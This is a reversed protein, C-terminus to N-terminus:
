VEADKLLNNGDRTWAALEDWITQSAIHSLKYICYYNNGLSNFSTGMALGTNINATETLIFRDHIPSKTQYFHIGLTKRTRLITSLETDSEIESKLKELDLANNAGKSYFVVNKSQAKCNTLIRIWDLMGKIDNVDTFYSDFIWITDSATQMVSGILDMAKKLEGPKVFTVQNDPKEADLRKKIESASISVIEEYKDLSDGINSVYNDGKHEIAYSDAIKNLKIRKDVGKIQMNFHIQRIYSLDKRYYVLEDNEFIEIDHYTWPKDSKIETVETEHDVCVLKTSVIIDNKKFRVIVTSGASLSEVIIGDAKDARYNRAYSKFVLTDGYLMLNKEIDLGTYKMTFENIQILKDVSINLSYRDKSFKFIRSPKNACEYHVMYACSAQGYPNKTSDPTLLGEEKILWDAINDIEDDSALTETFILNYAGVKEVIKLCREKIEDDFGHHYIMLLTQGGYKITDCIM